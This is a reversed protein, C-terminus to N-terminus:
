MDPQGFYETLRAKLKQRAQHLHAKVTEVSLKMVAAIQEYSLEHYVRLVLCKRMQEPLEVIAARLTQRREEELMDDLPGRGTSLRDLEHDATQLAEVGSDLSIHVGARRQALQSRLVQRYTNTAIQFLWAEFPAERRFTGLNISIRFFTEQTLDQCEISSFGRKQFFHFVRRYYQEVLRRFNEEREIGAQWEEIIRNTSKSVDGV